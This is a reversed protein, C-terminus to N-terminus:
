VTLALNSLVCVNVPLLAMVTLLPSIVYTVKEQSLRVLHKERDVQAGTGKFLELAEESNVEFGVEEIVQMVTQHLKSISEETLPKYSGGTLGKRIM